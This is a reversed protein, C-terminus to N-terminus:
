SQEDTSSPCCSFFGPYIFVEQEAEMVCSALLLSHFEVMVTNLETKNISQLEINMQALESLLESGMNGYTINLSSFQIQNEKPFVNQM